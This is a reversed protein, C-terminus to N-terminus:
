SWNWRSVHRYVQSLLKESMDLRRLTWASSTGQAQLIQSSRRHRARAIMVDIGGDSAGDHRDSTRDIAGVIFHGFISGALSGVVLPLQRARFTGSLITGGLYTWSQHQSSLFEHDM